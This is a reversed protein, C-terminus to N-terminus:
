KLDLLVKNIAWTM